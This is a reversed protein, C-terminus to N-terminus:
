VEKEQVSQKKAKEVDYDVMEKVLEDFTIEPEWGLVMKAKDAKGCLYEVDSPRYFKPDIVIFKYWDKIGIHAFAVDLFHRVSYTKGTAVVYDDPMEPQLSLYQAYVTDKGHGWDRMASINGLRLCPMQFVEDHEDCYQIHDGDATLYLYNNNSIYSGTPFTDVFEGIWKTIKRTVFNEGRRVTEHNYMLLNTTYLNYARRYNQVLYHAAVKAVAYPSDPAFHTNEDQLKKGSDDISYNNGFQESTSAQMLKTDSSHLRIAELINLVGIANVNFTYMPQDFSTGVHSQAALNYCEDPHYGSIIQTVSSADTIDGEILTFNDDNIHKVRETNDVSCRRCVGIVEYDKTLLLESLYSGDQGTVGFIVATKQNNM